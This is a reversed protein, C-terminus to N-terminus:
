SKLKVKEYVVRDKNFYALFYFSKEPFKFFFKDARELQNVARKYNKPTKSCKCEFVFLYDGKRGYVDIEGCIGNRNYERNMFVQNFDRDVLENKVIDVLSDHKSQKRNVM